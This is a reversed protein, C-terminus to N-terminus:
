AAGTGHLVAPVTMFLIKLDLQLSWHDIYHLDLAIWRDFSVNSRGSIQWLCTLGPKVSFRRMLWAESFRGVDRMNLPRPGVFSMEGRLINFLQPLEDISTRRLISGIKTVRPDNFIKFVPGSNENMHELSAQAAEANIVMTRFKYIRFTRKGLGYREQAFLVPGESTCKILIAVLLLLPALVILGCLSGVVDLARKISHRYDDHVMKLILKGNDYRERYCHGLRSVDFLDDCYQVQVGVRECISIAREIAGYQSKVPLTIIVEDVVQRMLIEELDSIRGLFPESAGPVERAASDVFGLVKYDWEPHVRLEDRLKAARMGGGVIVANRDRRLHPRVYLHFLCVAVRSLLAGGTAAIWFYGAVRLFHGHHWMSAIVQGSLLASLGTALLVRGPVGQASQVHRWTYLGCYSFITRWVIWCLALVVFHGVSMRISLLRAINGALNANGARLALYILALSLCVLDATACLEGAIAHAVAPRLQLGPNRPATLAFPAGPADLRATADDGSELHPQM